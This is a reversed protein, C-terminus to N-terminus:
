RPAEAPEVRILVARVAVRRAYAGRVPDYGDCTLLTVWDREEHRLVRLDDPGVILAQRVQYIYVSDGAFIRIEDGWVLEQLRYFPGPLGDASYVHGTLATNGDHTPYATGELYGANDGLWTLTWGSPGLPVGVIPLHVDLSPIELLMGETTTEGSGAPMEPLETTRGPAFGTAPLSPARISVSSTVQYVDVTSGPDFRRETSLSNHTSQPSSVDGPLSTWELSVENRVREGPDIDGLVAQFEIESTSGLPFNSWSAVLTPAAGQDLSDPAVGVGTWILTDPVYTLEGPLIDTMVLDFADADSASSHGINLTFTVTDGPPLVTPSATKHLNLTPEILTVREAARALSGGDWSWLVRNGLQGGRVNIAADLTVVDYRLTLTADASDSNTVTGLDFVIRRGADTPDTSTSPEASVSPNSCISDFSNPSATLGGSSAVLSDCGVFALGRELVDTLSANGMSGTPLTMVIEYTMIEGIATDTGASFVQNTDVLTKTLDVKPLSVINDTDTATNDAPTPEPGNAGDDAVDVTNAIQTVSADLTGDVVLTFVLNQSAGSAFDGITYTCVSGPTDDPVCAWGSTSSAADFTTNAPITDSVEVGTADQDGVNQVTMAFTLTTGPSVIDLGDDKTITLDPAADIPTIETDANDAPTPEPGHTGDDTVSATNDVQELGAPAPNVVQVAFDINTAGDAAVGGSVVLSCASGAVGGGACTWGSTSSGPVFTTRDPVTESVTVGSADANGVNSVTLTYVVVDGPQATVGGDSKDLQLDIGTVTVSESTSATYDNVGGAGTRENADTGPISTWQSTPSNTFVDGVEASPPLDVTAQYTFSTSGSALALGPVSFVITPASSEDVQAAPLSASGGVYTLGDPVTDSIVIDEADAASSGGHEIIVTYTITQGLAPTDDDAVKTITLAPEVVEVEASDTQTGTSYDLTVDNTLADGNQNASVNGLRAVIEIAIQDESDQVGDPENHLTGFDFVIEDDLGDSGTDSSVGPDGISLASGSIQGGISLVQSTILRLVGDPPSPLNDTVAVPGDGEPLTVTINFTVEEGIVLDTISPSFQGSGTSAVSTASISKSVAPDALAMDLSASDAYDNLAGGSGDAGTREGDASGPSGPTSSGTPNSASGNDGPLSTYTLSANNPIASGLAVDDVIVATVQVNVVGGPDVEDISIDVTPASSNDVANVYGSGSVAVSQLILDSDLTDLLRVDFAPSANVGSPNSFSLTYVLTDGADPGTVNVTKTLDSLNPEAIRVSVSNSTATVAGNVRSQFNDSRTTVSAAGTANNVAQNGAVNETLANFEVVVYEQNADDDPNTATGFKFYPDTGSAYTDNEATPSASVASDPLVYTPTIGAVTTEDGVVQLGSGSLTTSTIGDDSVFAAMATGDDLFRLGSPLRDRFQLETATGEALRFVLRFRVIEGIAVREIGGSSGTFSESTAVISKIPQQFVVVDADDTTSYDNDTGGPNAADGTREASLTNHTSQATTVDGPLSTWELQATNTITQGPEVSRDLTAQFQIQSTDSLEFALWSASVTGGSEILSGVDPALGGTHTLSGAVYTMGAPIADTLTLDFAEVDSPPVQHAIDLTFTIVDDADGTTPNATKTIQLEPELITVAPASGSVSTPSGAATWSYEADNQRTDGRDNSGGNIVVATYTFVITEPVANDTNSNTLTGFDLSVQRGQDEPAASGGPASIVAASLVDAFTGISTSLDASATLGDLSVFALGVDLTDVLSVNDADGEPVTVTVQYQAQEGIAVDNGNTFLQNTGLIVKQVTPFAITVDASDTLDSDSGTFDDGGEVSAYNFVTATNTITQSPGVDADLQLDYTVVVINRGGSLSFAQCAGEDASPDDLEIGADFLDADTNSGGLPTYNWATGDGRTVTLNLGGSPISYGAPLDDKIRIDHAGRHGSGVNEVVIAFSMLDGADVDSADSDIPASELGSSDITGSWRTGASGPATFSVPGVVSPDFTGNTNDTTIVGKTVRLLPESSVIQIIQDDVQTGANTSGEEARVQNTLFLQDAYPTDTMTVTFLIDVVSSPNSPDDFNGYTFTVSNASADSTVSPVIGSISRFTDNPGFHAHGAAPATGSQVDDFTTVETALFVPLPLYDTFALNEVDSTPLTEQIRYTLTDDPAVPPPSSFSTSGNVAYISKSLSGRPVTLSTSSTDSPTGGLLTGPSANDRVTGSVTVDNDLVDGQDVSMDGSPYTDTFNDLVITRFVITATSAGADPAVARGGVLIGDGAIRTLAQSLHFTLTTTGDTTPNADNGIESTDVILDTGVIFSGADASGRETVGLTPTFSNDFHQGDSIVDTVELDGFTFYDSVQVNLTYELTDGPSAGSAGTDVVVGASKQIALSRDNLTHEPGPPNAVANGASGSDRVDIPTWTGVASANDQSIVSAGSTHDVVVAGDADLDPVFYEIVMSADSSSASGAVSDFHAVIVNNPPNAAAGPTPTTTVVGGGSVSIVALFALNDPLSDTLDLDAVTQGAPLDVSITYRRPYNPGTATEDEPGNYTKAITILSPTTSSGPWSASNTSASSLIVPDCCWDDLPTEGYQFGGRVHVTLPTGLDALNSMSTEVDITMAPQAPTVSGFPLLIVALTDGTTGCVQLYNGSTDRAYPHSVCGTGSGDDPFTLSSTTLSAGLYTAGLFTLGDPTDTGAAGDAGNTPIVLDVFPGYGTTSGTNDFTVGFSVDSGIFPSGPLSLSVSPVAASLPRAEAPMVTGHSLPLGMATLLLVTVLIYRPPKARM